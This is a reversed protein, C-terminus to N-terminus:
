GAGNKILNIKWLIRLFEFNEQIDGWIKNATDTDSSKEIMKPRLVGKRLFKLIKQTLNKRIKRLKDDQAM